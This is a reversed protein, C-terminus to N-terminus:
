ILQVCSVATWALTAVAIGLLLRHWAQESGGMRRHHHLTALTVLVGLGVFWPEYFLLDWRILAGEDLEVWGRFDLEVVGLLHLTKTAYAVLGHTLAVVVGVLAPGIVLWRPIRTGWPRVLALAALGVAFIFAGALLSAQRAGAPDELVGPLGVM